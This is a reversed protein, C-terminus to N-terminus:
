EPVNSGEQLARALYNSGVNLNWQYLATENGAGGWWIRLDGGPRYTNGLSDVATTNLFTEYAQVFEALNAGGVNSRTAETKSANLTLRWNRTPQASFEIEYG